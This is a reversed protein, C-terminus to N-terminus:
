ARCSSYSVNAAISKVLLYRTSSSEADCHCKRLCRAQSRLIPLARCHGPSTYRVARRYPLWVGPGGSASGVISAWQPVLRITLASTQVGAPDMRVAAPIAPARSLNRVAHGVASFRTRVAKRCSWDQELSGGAAERGCLMHRRM